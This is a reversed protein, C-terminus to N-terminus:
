SVTCCCFRRGPTACTRASGAAARRPAFLITLIWPVFVAAGVLALLAGKVTRLSRVLYRLWGRLQLGILLGLAGNM